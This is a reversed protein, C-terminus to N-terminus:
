AAAKKKPQGIAEVKDALEKIAGMSVGIADIVSIEKGNGLGTKKTFDEAYTGIHEGGDGEGAKYNWKEVPMERVADLVGMVPRRNEKVEKSSAMFPMAGILQGFAGGLASASSQNGQWQATRNAFDQNLITAQQGYGSMAGNAGSAAASNSLGMSTAPNVAMGKGLNIVNGRMGEATAEVARRAGNAAGAAALAEATAGRAATEMARGSAPNVGVAGLSRATTGRSIAGQQRVDAVAEAAMAEKRAPSDYAIADKIYQDEVPQFVTKSRTRDEDAWRNTTNAQDRMFGLYKEGVEASKMAAEGMRPDPAPAKSKKGM